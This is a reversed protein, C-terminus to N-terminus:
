VKVLSAPLRFTVKTPTRIWRLCKAFEPLKNDPIENFDCLKDLTLELRKVSWNDFIYKGLSIGSSIGLLALGLAMVIPGTFPCFLLLVALIGIVAATLALKHSLIKNSIRDKLASHLQTKATARHDRPIATDIEDPNGSSNIIHLMQAAYKERKVLDFYRMAYWAGDGKEVNEIEEKLDNLAKAEPQNLKAQVEKSQILGRAHIAISVASLGVSAIGLPTAWLLVASDVLNLMSLGQAMSAVSEGMTAVSEVLHLGADVRERKRGKKVEASIDIASSIFNVVGSIGYIIGGGLKIRGGLRAAMESDLSFFGGGTSSTAKPMINAIETNLKAITAAGSLGSSIIPIYRIAEQYESTRRLAAYKESFFKPIREFIGKIKECLTKPKSEQKTSIVCSIIGNPHTHTNFSNQPQNINSVM